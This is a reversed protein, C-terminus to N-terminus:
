GSSRTGRKRPTPKAEPEVYLAAYGHAIFDQAIHEPADVIQGPDFSQDGDTLHVAMVVKM